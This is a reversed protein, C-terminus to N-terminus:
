QSHANVFGVQWYDEMNEFENKLMDLTEEMEKNKEKLEGNEKELKEKHEFMEKKVLIQEDEGHSGGVKRSCNPSGSTPSSSSSTLPDLEFEQGDPSSRDINHSSSGEESSSSSSSSMSSPSKPPHSLKMLALEKKLSENELRTEEYAKVYNKLSQNEKSASTKDSLIKLIEEKVNDLEGELNKCHQELQFVQVKARENDSTSRSRKVASTVSLAPLSSPQSALQPKLMGSCFSASSTLINEARKRVLPQHSNDANVLVKSICPPASHKTGLKGHMNPASDNSRVAIM